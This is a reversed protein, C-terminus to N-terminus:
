MAIVRRGKAEIPKLQEEIEAMHGYSAIVVADIQARDLVSPSEITLDGFPKGQKAADNDVIHAVSLGMEEAARLVIEGTEAAGFIAIRKAGEGALSELRRRFGAKIMGYFQVAEKSMLTLLEDRRRLGLPTLRYRYTRNTEGQIDVWERALMEALYQNVMTSSMLAERAIDRQSLDSRTAIANLILYERLERSPRLFQLKRALM